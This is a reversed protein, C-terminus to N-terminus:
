MADHGEKSSGSSSSAGDLEDPEAGPTQPEPPGPTLSGPGGDTRRSAGEQEALRLAGRLREIEAVARRLARGMRDIEGRLLAVEDAHRRCCDKSEDEGPVATADPVRPM